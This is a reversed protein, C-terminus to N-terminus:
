ARRLHSYRNLVRAASDGGVALGLYDCLVAFSRIDDSAKRNLIVNTLRGDRVDFRAAGCIFAGDPHGRVVGDGTVKARALTSGKSSLEEHRIKAGGVWLLSFGQDAMVDSYKNVYKAYMDTLAYSVRVKPHRTRAIALQGLGTLFANRVARDNEQDGKVEIVWVLRDDKRAEVDVTVGKRAEFGKAALWEKVRGEAVPERTM